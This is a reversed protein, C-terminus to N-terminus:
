VIYPIFRKTRQCYEGYDPFSQQLLREEASARKWIVYFLPIGLLVLWSNLALELGIVLMWDGSYIPHRIYNYLGTSVLQQKTMVQADEINAWNNGLQIRGFIATALGITYIVVGVIRLPLPDAMIPLVDLFATQVLLFLLVATKALKVLRTLPSLPVDPKSTPANDRRKLVEWVLKHLIMGGLLYARLAMEPTM